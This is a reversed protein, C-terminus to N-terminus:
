VEYRKGGGIYYNCNLTKFFEKQFENLKDQGALKDKM